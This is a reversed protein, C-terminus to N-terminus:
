LGTPLGTGRLALVDPADRLTDIVCRASAVPLLRSSSLAPTPVAGSYPM